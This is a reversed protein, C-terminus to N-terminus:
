KLLEEEIEDLIRKMLEYMDSCNCLVNNFKNCTEISFGLESQLACLIVMNDVMNQMQSEISDPHDKGATLFENVTNLVSWEVNEKKIM